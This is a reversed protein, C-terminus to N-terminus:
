HDSLGLIRRADHRAGLRCCDWYTSTLAQEIFRRDDESPHLGLECEIAVLRRLRALFVQRLREREQGQTPLPEMAMSSVVEYRSRM